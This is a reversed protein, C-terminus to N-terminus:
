IKRLMQYLTHSTGADSESFRTDFETYGCETYFKKLFDSEERELFQIVGGAMHRLQLITEEAMELLTRGSIRSEKPAAYNKGLQAILYASLTFTEAEATENSVRAIRKAMSRSIAARKVTIPKIAITYYGLLTYDDSFILYSM